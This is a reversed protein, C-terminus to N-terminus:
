TTLAFTIEAARKNRLSNKIIIKACANTKDLKGHLSESITGKNTNVTDM